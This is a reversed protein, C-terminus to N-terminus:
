RDNQTSRHQDTLLIGAQMCGSSHEKDITSENRDIEIFETCFKSLSFSIKIRTLSFCALHIEPHTCYCHKTFLWCYLISM